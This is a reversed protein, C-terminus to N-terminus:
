KDSLMKNKNKSKMIRVLKKQVDQDMRSLLKDNLGIFPCDKLQYYNSRNKKDEETKLNHSM